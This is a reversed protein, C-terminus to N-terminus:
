RHLLFFRRVYNKELGNIAVFYIGAPLNAANQLISWTNAEGANIFRTYHDIERGLIDFIQIGMMASSRPCIFLQPGSPTNFIRIESSVRSSNIEVDNLMPTDILLVQYRELIVMQGNVEATMQGNTKNILLTKAASALVELDESSSKTQFLQTGVPFHRTITEVVDYHPTPRGGEARDTKSFLYNDIEGEQPNWVLGLMANNVMAHYYCSAHNAATFQLDDKDSGGYFESVVIPLASKKGLQAIIRGFNKTMKMMEAQSYTNVDHYDILGYDMCIFDAGRKHQLWYDIVQWDKSGIPTYTDRGSKGVEVGGDGQIVLYPGGVKADPRVAKVADYVANYLTTYRIYDWNNLSNSWYGKMENWVQFYEVEPYRGAIEACLVAFEQVQDDVVDEEMAWDDSGKMWGPATCFTIIMPTSISKMLEVRHDLDNWYFEGPQPEPNGVGWGMIHQNQFTIGEVLLLTARQVATQHGYEWFGHTHTVGIQFQNVILPQSLDIRVSVSQASLTFVSILTVFLVATFKM